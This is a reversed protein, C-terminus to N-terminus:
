TWGNGFIRVCNAGGDVLGAYESLTTGEPRPDDVVLRVRSDQPMEELKEILEKVTM